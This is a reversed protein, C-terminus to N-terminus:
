ASQCVIRGRASPCPLMNAWRADLGMEDHINSQRCWQLALERGVASGGTGALIALM